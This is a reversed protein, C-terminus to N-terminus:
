RSQPSRGRRRRAFRRHEACQRTLQRYDLCTRFAVCIETAPSCGAGKVPRLLRFNLTKVREGGARRVAAGGGGIVVGGELRGSPSKGASGAPSPRGQSPATTTAGSSVTSAIPRKSRSASNRNLSPQITSVLLRTIASSGAKAAPPAPLAPPGREHAISALVRSSTCSRDATPRMSSESPSRVTARQSNVGALAAAMWASSSAKSARSRPGLPSVSGSLRLSTLCGAAAASASSVSSFGAAAAVRPRASSAPPVPPQAEQRASKRSIEKAFGWAPM